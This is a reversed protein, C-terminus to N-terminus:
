TWPRPSRSLSAISSAPPYAPSGGHSDIRTCSPSTRLISRGLCLRVHLGALPAETPAVLEAPVSDSAIDGASDHMGVPDDPDDSPTPVLVVDKQARSHKARLVQETDVLQVTGPVISEDIHSTETRRAEPLNTPAMQRRTREFLFVDLLPVPPSPPRRTAAAPYM